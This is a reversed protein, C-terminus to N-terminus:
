GANAPRPLWPFLDPDYNAGTLIIGLRRGAFRQHHALVVAIPVAASPEIAMGTTEFVLRMATIIGAEDALLIDDVHTSILAFNSVGILGRLGDAITDPQWHRVREGARFSAEGDAAGEPEAGVVEIGPNLARAALACGALLGGGGLPTMLIDLGPQDQLLELAATGQGAIIDPHDYPPVPHLGQEVLRALGQERAAQSPTCLIVEGGCNRVAAMKGPVSNEPMVVHAKRGARRAAFALAAGHNGSSHTAVDGNRGLEQLRAVANSAGRLKFAGTAQQHDCKLWVTCGLAADLRPENVVATRSVLGEIRGAAAQIARFDVGPQMPPKLPAIATDNKSM